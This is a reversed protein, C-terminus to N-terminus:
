NGLISGRRKLNTTGIMEGLENGSTFFISKRKHEDEQELAAVKKAQEQAEQAKQAEQINQLKAQKEMNKVSEASPMYKETDVFGGGSGITGISAASAVSGIAGSIDGKAVSSVLRFPSKLWSKLSKKLSGM